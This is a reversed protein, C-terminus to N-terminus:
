SGGPGSLQPAPDEANAPLLTFQGCRDSMVRWRGDALVEITSHSSVMRGYALRVFRENMLGLPGDDQWTSAIIPDGASGCQLDGHTTDEAWTFVQRYGDAFLGLRGDCGTDPQAATGDPCTVNEVGQAAIQAWTETSVLAGSFDAGHVSVGQMSPPAGMGGGLDARRFDANRLDAGDFNSRLIAARRFSAGRFDVGPFHAGIFREGDFNWGRLDDGFAMRRVQVSRPYQPRSQGRVFARGPGDVWGDGSGPVIGMLVAFAALGTVLVLMIRRRAGSLLPQGANRDGLAVALIPVPIFSQVAATTALAVSVSPSLNLTGELALYAIAINAVLNLFLAWTRLRYVGWVAVAMVVAACVTPGAYRTTALLNWGAMGFRLQLLSSFALTLADAAAMVLALQLHGRFRVPAFPHDPEQVDLGQEGVSVLAVACAVAILAGALKDLTATYNMAVLLGVVLNSWWVSRCLLQAGLRPTAIWRRGWALALVSGPLLAAPHLMLQGLRMLEGHELLPRFFIAVFGLAAVFTARSAIRVSRAPLSPAADQKAKLREFPAPAVQRNRMAEIADEYSM